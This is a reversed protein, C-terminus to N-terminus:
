KVFLSGKGTGKGRQCDVEEPEGFPVGPVFWWDGDMNPYPTKKWIKQLREASKLFEAKIDQYDKKTLKFDKKVFKGNVLVHEIDGVNSHLIVAAIPDNWGLLGPSDTSFVVIDAKAGPQIVGLDPRGLALGGHQTALLFAQNVSMSQYSPVKWDAVVRHSRRLRMTQLWIRAQTIIDASFTMHCDVGLASQDMAKDTDPNDTGFHMESEPSISIYQDYQRLLLLDGQTIVPAHAFIVPISGNLINYSHLLTPSTPPGLPWGAAHTTIVALDADNALQMAFHVEDPSTMAFRDYALGIRTNSDEWLSRKKSLSVLNQFQDDITFNSGVPTLDHIAYAWFVRAHSNVAAKLGAEATEPSWTHHAFDVVTTVGANLSELLGTLEGYYVDNATYHPQAAFEGYRGIYEALTTNSAVTKLATQWVHHHTDVFGPSVIKGVCDIIEAQQLISSNFSQSIEVIIDNKVLVSYDRWVELYNTESSFGIVTGGKLLTLSDIAASTVSTAGILSKMSPRM